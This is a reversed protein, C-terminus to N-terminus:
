RHGGPPLGPLVLARRVELVHHAFKHAWTEVAVKEETRCTEVAVEEAVM